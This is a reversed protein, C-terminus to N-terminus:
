VMVAQVVWDTVVERHEVAEAKGVNGVMVAAKVTVIALREAEEVRQRDVVGEVLTDVVVERDEEEVGVEEGVEVVLRDRVVLTEPEM